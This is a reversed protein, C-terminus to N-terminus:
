THDTRGTPRSSVDRERRRAAELKRGAEEMDSEDSDKEGSAPSAEEIDMAGETEEEESSKREREEYQLWEPTAQPRSPSQPRREREEKRQMRRRAAEMRTKEEDWLSAGAEDEDRARRGENEELRNTESDDPRNDDYDLDFASCTWDAASPDKQRDDSTQELEDSELSKNAIKEKQNTNSM